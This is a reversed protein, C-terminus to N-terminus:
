QTAAPHEVGAVQAPKTAEPLGISMVYDRLARMQLEDDGNLIDPPGDQADPDAYFSPMKTGPLLKQPDHIWALVWEPYLRQAAMALNPAWSDPAGQPMQTGRVHCSFCQLYDPSTLLEGAKVLTPDLTSRDFFTYPVQKHDVAAFYRLAAETEGDSLGFTPMRVKLWPRIPSPAKLFRFLWPSQVKKGEGRLNPPAM